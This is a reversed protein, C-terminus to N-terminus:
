SVKKIGIQKGCKWCKQFYDPIWDKPIKDEANMESVTSLNSDLLRSGCEPCFLRKKIM